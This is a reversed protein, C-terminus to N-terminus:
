IANERYILTDRRLPNGQRIINDNQKKCPICPTSETQLIGQKDFIYLGSFYPWLQDAWPRPKLEESLMEKIKELIPIVVSRSGIATVSLVDDLWKYVKDLTKCYPPKDGIAGRFQELESLEKGLIVTVMELFVCGLSFVDSRYDREKEDTSQACAYKDTKATYGHSRSVEGSIYHKSIGFDTLLPQNFSDIIINGPKIDKHKLRINKNHLYSVAQSLCGFFGHMFAIREDQYNTRARAMYKELDCQGAPYIAIGLNYEAMEEEEVKMKSGNVMKSKTVNAMYFLEYSAVYSVIHWHEVPEMIKVERLAEERQINQCKIVKLALLQRFAKVSAPPRVPYVTTSHVAGLIGGPQRVFPGCEPLFDDKEAPLVNHRESLGVMASIEDEQREHSKDWTFNDRHRRTIFELM